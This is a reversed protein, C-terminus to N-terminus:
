EKGIPETPAVNERIWINRFKVPDRHFQLSIPLKYDHATYKPAKNFMTPGLLEHHNQVLVGNLLVTLYGPKVLGGDDDFEPADYIIDYTQWEGPKRCPNVIPPSQKYVAGCQGDFYTKNEYSDLVQVEYRTNGFFIGSNGRGQGEKGDTDTPSSFELHLQCSGFSKKTKIARKTAILTGDKQLWRDAGNWQDVNSGDFLVIADSPASGNTGPTVVPPEDWILGSKWEEPIIAFAVIPLIAVLAIAIIPRSSFINKVTSTRM